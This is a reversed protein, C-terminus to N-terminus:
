SGPLLASYSAEIAGYCSCSAKVLGPRDLIEIRARTYDILGADRLSQAAVTVSARRVGLMIALFKHSLPLMSDGVRDETMLLWRACRQDITHIGNCAISRASQESWFQAYLHMLRLLEPSTALARVFDASPMRLTSGDIQVICRTAVRSVGHLLSIGAMGEWGVTGVEVEDTKDVVSLVSLCGATPFYVYEIEKNPEWLSDDIHTDVLECRNTIGAYAKSGLSKLLWNSRGQTAATAAEDIASTM